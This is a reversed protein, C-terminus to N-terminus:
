KIDRIEFHMPDSRSFWRGWFFGHDVALNVLERVSGKQGKLAGTTTLRNWNACIDFATGTAHNSLTTRSGRVFRPAWSGDWSLVLPLLGADDWAQWLALLQPVALRHFQVSGHTPAGHIQSSFQPIHVSVINDRVWNGQIQIAEANQPTPAAQYTFKGFLATRDQASLPEVDPPLPPWNPGLQDPNPDQIVEFGRLMAQGMTQNGVAGDPDLHFFQQFEVTAARTAEDFEGTVEETLFGQGLLFNQWARVDTGISGVRLVKM